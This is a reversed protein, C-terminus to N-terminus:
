VAVPAKIGPHSDYGVLEFDEFKYDFISDPKRLINLEPFVFAEPVRSLQLKVQELHNSYIHSNGSVAILEHAVLGTQQAVMHLLLAYSAINFPAGLFLDWSRQYWQMSLKDGDVDFQIWSHCPPLAQYPLAPVFYTALIHRRSDPNTKINKILEALQDITPEEDGTKYPAQKDDMYFYPNPLNRWMAGYVPGLEGTEDKVWDNWIRVGNDQLYKVNTDGSIFWLLEHLISKFHVKKTTILPFGNAMNYRLQPPGFMAITGTGTRDTRVTGNNLVNELLTEYQTDVKKGMHYSDDEESIFLIYVM